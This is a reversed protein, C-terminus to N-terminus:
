LPSLINDSGTNVVVNDAIEAVADSEAYTVGFAGAIAVAKGDDGGSQPGGVPTDGGSANSFNTNLKNKIADASSWKHHSIMNTTGLLSDVTDM